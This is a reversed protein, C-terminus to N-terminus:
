KIYVQASPSPREPPFDRGVLPTGQTSNTGDASAVTSNTGIPVVNSKRSSNKEKKKSSSAISPGKCTRINHKSGGCKGCVIPGLSRKLKYPDKPEEAGKKRQKKPRGPPRKLKPPQVPDENSKTWYEEGATPKIFFGYLQEHTSRSYWPHVFDEPKLNNFGICAVAHMCPIGILDWERCSCTHMQLDVACKSNPPCTVEFKVM